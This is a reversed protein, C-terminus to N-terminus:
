RGLEVSSLSGPVVDDVGAREVAGSTLRARVGELALGSDM